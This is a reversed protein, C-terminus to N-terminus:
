DNKQGYCWELYELNDTPIYGWCEHKIFRGWNTNKKHIKCMTFKGTHWSPSCGCDKCISKYIQHIKRVM